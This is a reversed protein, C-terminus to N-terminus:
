AEDDSIDMVETGPTPYIPTYSPDPEEEEDMYGLMEDVATSRRRRNYTAATPRRRKRRSSPILSQRRSWRYIRFTCSIGPHNQYNM